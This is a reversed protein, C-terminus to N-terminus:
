KRFTIWKNMAFNAVNFSLMAILQQVYADIDTNYELWKLVGFQLLYCCLFVSIFLWFKRWNYQSKFTFRSNFLFSNVVGAAYGLANSLEPSLHMKKLTVWIVVATILTNLVGVAGYSAIQRLLEVSVKRPGATNDQNSNMTRATSAYHM